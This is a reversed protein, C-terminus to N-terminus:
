RYHQHIQATTQTTNDVSALVKNVLSKYNLTLSNNTVTIPKFTLDNLTLNIDNGSGTHGYVYVKATADPVISLQGNVNKINVKDIMLQLVRSQGGVEVLELALNAVTDIAPAGTISFDLGFTTPTSISAGATLSAYSIQNGNIRVSDSQLALYATTATTDIPAAAPNQLKSALNALDADSANLFQQAQAGIQAAMAALNADSITFVNFKSDAAMSAVAGKAAATLVTLNVSGDAGFMPLSPNALLTAAVANAVKTYIGSTDSSAALTGLTNALQQVIQQVALTTRLLNQHSGDAPDLKTVDTGAPLGLATALQAATMGTDATLSTLPTAVASGAPAKLTGKFAYNTTADTGGTVVVTGSCGAAFTFAGGALTTTTTETAADFVGNKNVDCFVTSGVLYGDVAKGSSPTAQTTTATSTTAPSPSSSGGGGCATLAATMALWLISNKKKFM